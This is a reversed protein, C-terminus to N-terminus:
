SAAHTSVPSAKPTEHGGDCAAEQAGVKRGSLRHLLREGRRFLGAAEPHAFAFRGLRAHDRKRSAAADGM